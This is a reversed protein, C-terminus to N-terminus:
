DDMVDDESDGYLADELAENVLAIQLATWGDHDRVSVLVFVVELLLLLSLFITHPHIELNNHPTHTHPTRLRM